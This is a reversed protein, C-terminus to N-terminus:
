FSNSVSVSLHIHLLYGYKLFHVAFFFDKHRSVTEDMIYKSIIEHVLFCFLQNITRKNLKSFDLNIRLIVLFELEGKIYQLLIYLM